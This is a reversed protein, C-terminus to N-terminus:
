RSDVSEPARQIGGVVDKGVEEVPKPMSVFAWSIAVQSRGLKDSAFNEVQEIENLGLEDTEFEFAMAAVHGESDEFVFRVLSKQCSGELSRIGSLTELLAGVATDDGSLFVSGKPSNVTATVRRSGVVGKPESEAEWATM